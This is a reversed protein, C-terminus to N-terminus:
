LCTNIFGALFEFGADWIVLIAINNSQPTTTDATATGNSTSIGIQPLRPDGWRINLLGAISALIYLLVIFYAIIQSPRRLSKTDRAEFSTVLVIEVSLYCYTILPM